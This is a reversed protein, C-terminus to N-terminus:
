INKYLIYLYTYYHLLLIIIAYDLSKRRYVKVFFDTVFHIM